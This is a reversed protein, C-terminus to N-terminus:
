NGVRQHYGYTAATLPEFRYGQDYLGSIISPLADVTTTKASTDHMLVCISSKGQAQTLVNNIIKQAPPKVSSADGSSVNWDFYSYGMGPLRVTLDSMIGNCYKRSVTNSGGGPFRIIMSKEGIISQVTDSLSNLDALYADVGSYIKSYNHTMSHLGITHGEAKIRTLYELKGTGVVFFSAKINYGALIDLIRLTNDSPGDDFTLYCIKAGEPAAAQQSNQVALRKLEEQQAKRKATLQAQLAAKEKELRSIVESKEKEIRSIEEKQADFAKSAAENAKETEELRSELENIKDTSEGNKTRETELQAACDDIKEQVAKYKGNLVVLLASVCVLAATLVAAVTIFIIKGNKESIKM